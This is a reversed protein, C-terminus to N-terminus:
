NVISIIMMARVVKSYDQAIQKGEEGGSFISLLISDILEKKTSKDFNWKYIKRQIM